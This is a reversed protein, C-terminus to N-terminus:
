ECKIRFFTVPVENIIQTNATELDISKFFKSFDQRDQLNKIFNYVARLQEKTNELYIYGNFVISLQPETIREGVTADQYDIKLDKLWAGQPLAQPIATLFFAVESKTRVKKLETLKNQLEANREELKSAMSDKLPGLEEDIKQLEQKPAQAMQSTYLFTLIVLGASVLATLLISIYNFSKQGGGGRSTISMKRPKKDSLNFNVALPVSDILGIGLASLFEVDEYEAAISSLVSQANVPMIPIGLDAELNKALDPDERCTVLLIENVKLQNEQRNYYDLSIRVENFLRYRLAKVDTEEPGMRMQFDRVFQPVGQDVIIIKGSAEGREVIALTKSFSISPNLSLARIISLSSPEVMAIGFGAQELINTHYELIDKKIAVFIVRIRRNNGEMFTIPHFSYCLEDLSFPIYKVVEFEVVGKAENSQMWPIIFTRFIIDKTPLSLTLTKTSLSEKQMTEQLLAILQMGEPVYGGPGSLDQFNKFSTKVVRTLKRDLTEAFYFSKNGWFLGIQKKSAM